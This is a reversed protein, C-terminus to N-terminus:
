KRIIEVQPSEVELLILKEVASAIQVGEDEIEIDNGGSAPTVWTGDGRLFKVADGGTPVYGVNAGGSYVPPVDWTNDKSM